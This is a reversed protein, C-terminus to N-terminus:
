PRLIPLSMYLTKRRIFSLPSRRKYNQELWADPACGLAVLVKESRVRIVFRLCTGFLRGASEGM